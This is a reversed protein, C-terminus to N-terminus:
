KLVSLQSLLIKMLEIVKKQLEIIQSYLAKIQEEETESVPEETESFEIAQFNVSQPEEINNWWDTARVDIQYSGAQIEPWLYSWSFGNEISEEPNVLQWDGQNFRIEVKQVSSGGTDSSEGMILFDKGAWLTQNEKPQIIESSPAQKDFLSLQASQCTVPNSAASWADLIDKSKMAITFETGPNLNFIIESKKQGATGASWSQNYTIASGYDISNGQVYKVEYAVAGAPVTWTLSISGSNVGESSCILDAIAPPQANVPNILLVAVILVIFLALFIQFYKSIKKM